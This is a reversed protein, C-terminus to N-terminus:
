RTTSSKSAVFANNLFSPTNEVVLLGGIIFVAIRVIDSANLSGLDIKKEESEKELRLLRIINDVNSYLAIFLFTPLVTKVILSIVSFTSTDFILYWIDNIFQFFILNILAYLGFVKILITWLEKKTM